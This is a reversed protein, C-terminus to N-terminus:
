QTLFLRYMLQINVTDPIVNQVEYSKAVTVLKKVVNKVMELVEIFHRNM